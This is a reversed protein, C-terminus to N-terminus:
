TLILSFINYVSNLFDVTPPSAETLGDQSGLMCLALEIGSTLQFGGRRMKVTILFAYETNAWECPGLM